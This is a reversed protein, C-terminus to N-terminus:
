ELGFVKNTCGIKFCLHVTPCSIRWRFTFDLWMESWVKWRGSQWISVAMLFSCTTLALDPHDVQEITDHCDQLSGYTDWLLEPKFWLTHIKKIHQEISVKLDKRFDRVLVQGQGLLAGLGYPISTEQGFAKSQTVSSSAVSIGEQGQVLGGFVTFVKAFSQEKGLPTTVVVGRLAGNWVLRPAKGIAQSSCDGEQVIYNMLNWM